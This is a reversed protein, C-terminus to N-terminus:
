RVSVSLARQPIYDLDRACPDSLIEAMLSDAFAIRSIAPEGYRLMNRQIVSDPDVGLSALYGVRLVHHHEGILTLRLSFDKIPRIAICHFLQGESAGMEALATTFQRSLYLIPQGVNNLRGAKVSKAPPELVEQPTLYGADSVVPRVRFLPMNPSM